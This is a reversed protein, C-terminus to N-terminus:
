PPTSCSGVAALLRPEALPEWVPMTDYRWDELGRVPVPFNPLDILAGVGGTFM